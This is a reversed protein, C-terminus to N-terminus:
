LPGKLIEACGDGQYPFFFRNEKGTDTRALTLRIPKARHLFLRILLPTGSVFMVYYGSTPSFMAPSQILLFSQTNTRVRLEGRHSGLENQRQRINNKAGSSRTEARFGGFLLRPSREHSADSLSLRRPRTRTAGTQKEVHANTHTFTLCASCYVLRFWREALRVPTENKKGKAKQHYPAM